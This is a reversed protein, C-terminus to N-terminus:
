ARRKTRCTSDYGGARPKAAPPRPPRISDLWIISDNKTNRNENKGIPRFTTWYSRGLTANSAVSFGIRGGMSHGWYVTQDLGLHDLVAVVDSVLADMVYAEPAHPKDSHGHGRADVLILHYNSKLADVYGSTHWDVLSDSWGHLMMLPPGHGELHYHIRVGNNPAYPM